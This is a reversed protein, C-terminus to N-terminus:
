KPHIKRLLRPVRPASVARTTPTVVVVIASGLLRSNRVTAYPGAAARPNTRCKSALDARVQSFIVDVVAFSIQCAVSREVIQCDSGGAAAADVAAHTRRAAGAIDDRPLMM